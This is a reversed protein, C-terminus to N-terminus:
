LSFCIYWPITQDEIDPYKLTYDNCFFGQQVPKINGFHICLTLTFLIPLPLYESIIKKMEESKYREM